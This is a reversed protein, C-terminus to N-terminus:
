VFYAISGCRMVAEDSLLLQVVKEKSDPVSQGLLRRNKTIIFFSVGGMLVGVGISGMADFVV